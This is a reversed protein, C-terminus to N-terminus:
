NKIRCVKNRKKEKMNCPLPCGACPNRRKRVARVHKCVRGAIYAVAAALLLYVVVHQM